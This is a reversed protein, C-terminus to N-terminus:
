QLTVCVKSFSKLLNDMQHKWHLINCHTIQLIPVSKQQSIGHNNNLIQTEVERSSNALMDKDECLIM